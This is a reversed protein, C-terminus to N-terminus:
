IQILIYVIRPAWQPRIRTSRFKFLKNPFLNRMGSYVFSRFSSLQVHVGCRHSLLSCIWMDDGWLPM